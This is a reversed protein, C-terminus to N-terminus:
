TGSTESDEDSNTPGFPRIPISHGLTPPKRFCRIGCLALYEVVANAVPRFRDHDGPVHKRPWLKAAKRLAQEVDFLFERRPIPRFDDDM